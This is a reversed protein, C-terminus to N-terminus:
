YLKRGCSKTDAARCVGDGGRRFFKPLVAAHIASIPMTAMDVIKYAMTYIGNAANMGFHGLMTKDIDNYMSGTSSAISFGLGELAHKWALRLKFAPKGFRFTVISIASLFPVFSVVLVALAWQYASARHIVFLMALAVGLRCLNTVFNLIATVRLQEFTQFIKGCCETVRRFLCDSVAALLIIPGSSVGLFLRGILHLVIVLFTGMVAASILINGWYAAFKRRDVSVERIFIIGSGLTSLESTISV